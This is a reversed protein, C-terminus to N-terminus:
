PQNHNLSWRIGTVAETLVIEPIWIVLVTAIVTCIVYLLNLLKISM